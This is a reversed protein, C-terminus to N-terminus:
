YYLAFVAHWLNDAVYPPRSLSCMPFHKIIEEVFGMDPVKSVYTLQYKNVLRYITNDAKATDFGEFSYVFCPYNMRVSAPPQFYTNKSGLLKRLDDRLEERSAM